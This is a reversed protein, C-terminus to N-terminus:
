FEKMFVDGEVRYWGLFAESFRAPIVLCVARINSAQFIYM